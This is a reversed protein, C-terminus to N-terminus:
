SASNDLPSTSTVASPLTILILLHTSIVGALGRM